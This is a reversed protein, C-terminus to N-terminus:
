VNIVWATGTEVTSYEGAPLGLNISKMCFYTTRLADDNADTLDFNEAIDGNRITLDTFDDTGESLEIFQTADDCPDAADVHAIFNDATIMETFGVRTLNQGTLTFTYGVTGDLDMNGNNQIMIPDTSNIGQDNLIVSPVEGFTILSENTFYGKLPNLNFADTEFFSGALDNISGTSRDMFETINVSWNGVDLSDDYYWMSVNCEYRRLNEGVHGCAGSDAFDSTNICNTGDFFRKTLADTDYNYPTNLDHVVHGVLNIATLDGEGPLDFIVSNEDYAVFSVATLETRTLGLGDDQTLTHGTTFNVYCIEPAANVISLNAEHEGGLSALEGELDSDEGFSFLDGLFGASILSISSILLFSVVMIGFVRKVGKM